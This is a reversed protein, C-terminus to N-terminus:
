IKEVPSFILINLELESIVQGQIRWPNTSGSQELILRGLTQSSQGGIDVVDVPLVHQVVGHRSNAALVGDDVRVVAVTQVAQLEGEARAPVAHVLNAEPGVDLRTCGYTMRLITMLWHQNEAPGGRARIKGCAVAAGRIAGENM